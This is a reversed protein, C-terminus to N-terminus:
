GPGVGFLSMWILLASGGLVGIVILWPILTPWEWFRWNV